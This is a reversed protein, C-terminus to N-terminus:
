SGFALYSMFPNRVHIRNRVGKVGGASLPYAALAVVMVVTAWGGRLTEKRDSTMGKSSRFGFENAGVRMSLFM